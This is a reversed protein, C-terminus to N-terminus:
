KEMLSQLPIKLGIHLGESRWDRSISGNMSEITVLELRSGFGSPGAPTRIRPDGVEIWDLSLGDEDQIEIEIHGAVTSLAGYKISNTIFEHLLMALSALASAGVQVDSGRGVLRENDKDQHAAFIAEILAFFSVSGNSQSAGRKATLILSHAAALAGIRARLDNAMAKPNTAAAESMSILSNMVAFLNKVRHQMEQLLLDQQEILRKRESIDRAIKSAGIIAGHKDRVPSATLSIDVLRGDKRRRVTEQHEIRKGARISDIITEEEHLLHPPVLITIPRGIAESALFGFLREASKNWSTIIGDVSKSIIADDSNEVIAALWAEASLPLSTPRSPQAEKILSKTITEAPDADKSVHSLQEEQM